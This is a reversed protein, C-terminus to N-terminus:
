QEEIELREGTGFIPTATGHGLNIYLGQVELRQYTSLIKIQKRTLKFGLAPDPKLVTGNPIDPTTFFFDIVNDIKNAM